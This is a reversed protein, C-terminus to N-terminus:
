PAPQQQGRALLAFLSPRRSSSCCSKRLVVVVPVPTCSLLCHRSLKLLFLPPSLRCADCVLLGSCDPTRVGRTTNHKNRLSM